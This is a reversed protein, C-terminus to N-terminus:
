CALCPTHGAWNIEIGLGFMDFVLFLDQQFVFTIMHNVHVIGELGRLAQVQSHFIAWTLCILSGGVKYTTVQPIEQLYYSGKFFLLGCQIKGFHNSCDMVQVFQSVKVTIQLRVVTHSRCSSTVLAM